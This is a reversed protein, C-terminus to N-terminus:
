KWERVERENDYYPMLDAQLENYAQKQKCLMKCGFFDVCMACPSQIKKGAEILDAQLEEASPKKYNSM